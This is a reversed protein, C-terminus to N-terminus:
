ERSENETLDTLKMEALPYTFVKESPHEEFWANIERIRPRENNWLRSYGSFLLRAPIGGIISYEPVEKTYDKSLVSYSGAVTIHNPTRTGKKITTKNGVWNYDGIVIPRFKRRVEGTALNMSYHFDTDFIQSHYALRFSKGITVSHQCYLLTNEGIFFDDGIDLTAGEWVCIEAGRIIRGKGRFIIQGNNNIRTKGQSRHLDFRGWRVMGTRVKCDNFEIRGKSSVIEVEEYLFVPMKIAVKFPLSRLNFYITKFFVVRFQHSSYEVFDFFTNWKKIHVLCCLFLFSHKLPRLVFPILVSEKFLQYM